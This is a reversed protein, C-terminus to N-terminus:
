VSREPCLKITVSTVAGSGRPPPDADGWVTQPSTWQTRKKMLPSLGGTKFGTDHKEQVSRRFNINGWM